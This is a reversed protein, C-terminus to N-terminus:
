IPLIPRISIKIKKQFLWFVILFALVALSVYMMLTYYDMVSRLLVYKNLEKNLVSQTVTDITAQNYGNKLLKTKLTAFREVYMPNAKQFYDLFRDKHTSTNYLTFYNVLVCKM